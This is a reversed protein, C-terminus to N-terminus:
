QSDLQLRNSSVDSVLLYMVALLRKLFIYPSGPSSCCETRHANDTTLYEPVGAPVIPIEQLLPLRPRRKAASHQAGLSRDM